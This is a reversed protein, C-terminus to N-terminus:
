ATWISCAKATPLLLSHPLLHKSQHIGADKFTQTFVLLHWATNLGFVDIQAAVDPFSLYALLHLTGLLVHIKNFIRDGILNSSPWYTLANSVM